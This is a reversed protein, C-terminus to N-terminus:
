PRCRWAPTARLTVSGPWSRISRPRGPGHRDRELDRRGPGRHHAGLGPGRHHRHGHPRGGCEHDRRDVPHHGQHGRPQHDHHDTAPCTFRITNNALTVSAPSLARGILVAGAGITIAGPHGDASLITGVFTANAGIGTAGVVQWYVNGAQAGNVLVVQSSAATNLAADVQFIFVADPDGRRRPHPHRDPCGRGGHSVRRCPVHPRHSGRRLGYRSHPRRRRRLRGPRGAGPRRDRRRCPHHRHRHRAPVGRGRHQPLHRPRRVGHHTRHQHCWRRRRAGLLGRGRRAPGPHRAGCREAREGRRDLHRGGPTHGHLGVRRVPVGSETCPSTPVVGCGPAPVAWRSPPWPRPTTGTSPTATSRWASPGPRPRGPSPSRTVRQPPRRPPARRSPPPGASVPAAATAAGTPTPVRWAWPSPMAAAFTPLWRRRTRRLRM